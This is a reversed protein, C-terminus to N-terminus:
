CTSAPKRRESDTVSLGLRPITAGLLADGQDRPVDTFMAAPSTGWRSAAPQTVTVRVAGSGQAGLRAQDDDSTRAATGTAPGDDGRAMGASWRRRPRWPRPRPRRTRRPRMRRLRRDALPRFRCQRDRRGGRCAPRRSTMRRPLTRARSESGPRRSGPRGGTGDLTLLPALRRSPRSREGSRDQASPPESGYGM